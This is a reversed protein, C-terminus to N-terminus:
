TTLKKSRLSDKTLDNLVDRHDTAVMLIDERYNSDKAANAYEPVDKICREACDNTVKLDHVCKYMVVYEDDHKWEKVWKLLWEGNAGLIHFLLWSKKPCSYM